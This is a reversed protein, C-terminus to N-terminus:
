HTVVALARDLLAVVARPERTLRRWTIRLVRYGLALLAADTRRDNEFARRSSHFTWSDFEIVLKQARWICDVEHPGVHVNTEPEPLGADRILRLLLMEANSRTRAPDTDLELLARLAPTGPRHPNRDVQSQLESRRVLRKAWAEAAAREFEDPRLCAGLDLLTRAPNTVPIGQHRRIEGPDLPSYHLAIGLRARIGREVTLHIVGSPRATIELMAGASAHSVAAPGRYCLVAAMEHALPPAARHGVLFVGRYVPILFGATILRDIVRASVGLRLLQRRAVTAHQRSALAAIRREM